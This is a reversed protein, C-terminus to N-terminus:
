RETAEDIRILSRVSRWVSEARRMELTGAAADGPADGIEVEHSQSRRRIRLKRVDGHVAGVGVSRPREFLRAEDLVEQVRLLQERSVSFALRRESPRPGKSM